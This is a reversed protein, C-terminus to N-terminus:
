SAFILGRKSLIIIPNPPSLFIKRLLGKKHKFLM